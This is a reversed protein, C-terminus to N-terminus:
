NVASTLGRLNVNCHSVNKGVNSTKKRGGGEKDQIEFIFRRLVPDQGKEKSERSWKELHDWVNEYSRNYDTRRCHVVSIGRNFVEGRLM